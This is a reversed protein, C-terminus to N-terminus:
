QSAAGQLEPHTALARLLQPLIVRLFLFLRLQARHSWLRVPVGPLASSVSLAVGPLWGRM